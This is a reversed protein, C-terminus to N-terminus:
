IAMLFLLLLHYEQKNAASRYTRNSNVVVKIYNIHYVMSGPADWRDLKNQGNPATAVINPV